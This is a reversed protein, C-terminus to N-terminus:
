AALAAMTAFDQQVTSVNARTSVNMTFNNTVQQGTGGGAAELSAQFRPLEISALDQMASAIGRLGLEFPTASGPVLWEPLEIGRLKETFDDIWGIVTGIASAILDFTLRLTDLIPQVNDKIFAWVTELAPKLVNEWLGALATLALTLGVDFLEVLAEFLPVLNDVMFAWVIELAPKLLNEWLDSLEQIAIPINEGLWLVVTAFIPLLSETIFLWVTELAPKLTEEWFVKLAEIAVPINTALWLVITEFAPIVSDIIFQWVTELAPKLTEEWFTKLTEIAIPINVGLWEVMSEFAPKGTNEWFNTLATRIGGIDEEWITRLLTVVAILGAITLVIPAIAAIVSILAPVVVSAIAIGLALLIDKLGVNKAIWDIVMTVFPTAVDILGQIGTAVDGVFVAITDLGLDALAGQLATVPDQGAMIATVMADVFFAVNDLVPVLFNEVFRILPPLVRDTLASFTQLLSNLTPLFAKGIEDKVDKFTAKMQAMGATATGAVDPMAATNEALKEMVQSMVATQQETKTLEDVSKGLEAAYDEYAANLDVQIALNDLILPSLRGVGRVLSDMLFGLDQGTAASVKGLFGMADPLEKAFDTSVLQAAQNFSLMLDRQAVMGASGKKLADLMETSGVGASEALGAFAAEISELPAADLALKAIGAGAALAGAGIAGFGALALKGITQVNGGVGRLVGSAKDKASIIIEITNKRVV